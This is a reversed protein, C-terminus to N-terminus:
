QYVQKGKWRRSEVRWANLNVFLCISMFVRCTRSTQPTSLYYMFRSQYERAQSYSKPLKPLKRLVTSIVAKYNDNRTWNSYYFRMKRKAKTPRFSTKSTQYVVEKTGAEVETVKIRWWRLFVGKWYIELRYLFCVALLWIAARHGVSLKQFRTRVERHVELDFSFTASYAVTPQRARHFHRQIYTNELKEKFSLVYFPIKNVLYKEFAM